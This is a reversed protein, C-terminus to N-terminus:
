GTVLVAAGADSGDVKGQAGNGGKLLPAAEAETMEVVDGAWLPGLRPHTYNTVMKVKVNM